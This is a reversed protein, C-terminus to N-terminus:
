YHRVINFAEEFDVQKEQSICFIRSYSRVGVERRLQDILTVFVYKSVLHLVNTHM